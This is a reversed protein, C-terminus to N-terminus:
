IFFLKKKLQSYEITYMHSITCLYMAFLLEGNLFNLCRFWCASALELALELQMEFCKFVTIRVIVCTCSVM